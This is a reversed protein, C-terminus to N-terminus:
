IGRSHTCATHIVRSEMAPTFAGSRVDLPVPGGMNIYFTFVRYWRGAEGRVFCHLKCFSPSGFPSTKLIRCVRM